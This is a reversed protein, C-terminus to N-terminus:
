MQRTLIIKEKMGRQINRIIVMRIIHSEEMLSKAMVRTIDTTIIVEARM